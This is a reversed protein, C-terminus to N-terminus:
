YVEQVAGWYKYSINHMQYKMEQIKWKYLIKPRIIKPLSTTRTKEIIIKLVKKATMAETTM